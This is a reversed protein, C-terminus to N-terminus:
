RHPTLWRNKNVSLVIAFLMSHGITIWIHNKLEDETRPWMVQLWWSWNSWVIPFIPIYLLALLYKTSQRVYKSQYRMSSGLKIKPIDEVASEEARYKHACMQYDPLFQRWRIAQTYGISWSLREAFGNPRSCLQGCFVGVPPLVRDATHRSGIKSLPQSFLDEQGLQNGKEMPLVALTVELM